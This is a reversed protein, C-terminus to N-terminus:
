PSEQVIELHASLSLPEAIAPPLRFCKDKKLIKGSAHKTRAALDLMSESLALFSPLQSPSCPLDEQDQREMILYAAWFHAVSKFNNYSWISNNVNSSNSAEGALSSFIPNIKGLIKKLTDSKAETRPAQLCANYLVLGAALGKHRRKSSEEELDDPSIVDRAGRVLKRIETPSLLGADMRDAAHEVAALKFARLRMQPDNPFVMYAWIFGLHFKNPSRVAEPDLPIILSTMRPDDTTM